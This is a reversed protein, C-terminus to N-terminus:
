NEIIKFTSTVFTKAHKDRKFSTKSTERRSPANKVSKSIHKITRVRISNKRFDWQATVTHVVFPSKRKKLIEEDISDRLLLGNAGNDNVINWDVDLIRQVKSKKQKEESLKAYANMSKIVKRVHHSYYPIFFSTGKQIIAGTTPPNNNAFWVKKDNNINENSYTEYHLIPGNQFVDADKVIGNYVPFIEYYSKNMHPVKGNTFSTIDEIPQLGKSTLVNAICKKEVHQIIFGSIGNKRKAIKNHLSKDAEIIFGKAVRFEGWPYSKISHEGKDIIIRYNNISM